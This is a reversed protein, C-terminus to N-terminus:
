RVLYFWTRGDGLVPDDFEQRDEEDVLTTPTAFDPHESRLVTYPTRGGTWELHVAGAADNRGVHLDIPSWAAGAQIRVTATEYPALPVVVQGGDMTLPEGGEEDQELREPSSFSLADSGIRATVEEGRLETLRLVLGSGVDAPKVAYLLVGPQDIGFFSARAGPLNGPRRDVLRTLPATLAGAGFRSATMPAFPGDMAQVHHVYHFLPPTDPEIEYGGVTGDEYEYEDSKDKLRSLLLADGNSFESSTLVSLNEFHHAVVNDVAYHIGLDADWFALVHEVNHWDFVASRDFGDALPDLYRTTTETRIEFEHVDFPMTAVYSVTGVQEDVWPMQDRDLVNEIELRDEGRYLRYVTEVHPTGTRTVRVAALLPGDSDVSVSASGPPEARPAAGGSAEQHTNSALQNFRYDSATDIMERGSPLHVASVLAGDAPDIEVSYWDNEITTDTVALTGEPEATPAGPQLDYVRYGMPPLATARFLIERTEDFRQFVLESGTARDVVHFSSSYIEEPLVTRVWGDREFGLTNIAVVADGRAPLDRTSRALGAQVLEAAADRAERAYELHIRNNRDMEERTFYGPWGGAGTHEDVEVMRRYAFDRRDALDDSGGLGVDAALLAEGGRADRHAQRIWTRTHQANAQSGSWACGFDGEFSPFAEPGYTALMHDLFDEATSLVFKPTEYAANWAEALNRAHFGQYHNDFGRMLLFEPYPYGAEEQEPLKKGMKHYLDELNDFFSFGWAFAEAYGDFTIWSLIRSGDPGIWWFPRDGHDPALLEGGFSTNMGGIYFELGSRAMLEPLAFTAGPVDDLVLTRLDFGHERAMRSSWYVSRTLEEHGVATTHLNAYGATLRMQGARLYSLLEEHEEPSSREWWRDLWWGAEITWRYDPDAALNDLVQDLHTKAFAEIDDPPETFGIDLHSLEVLHITRISSEVGAGADGFVDLDDIWTDVNRPGDAALEFRHVRELTRLDDIMELTWGGPENGAGGSWLRVAVRLAGAAAEEIAFRIWRKQNVPVVGAGTASRQVLVGSEARWLSVVGQGDIRMRYRRLEPARQEIELDFLYEAGLEARYEFAISFSPASVPHVFHRAWHRTPSIGFPGVGDAHFSTDTGDPDQTWPSPQGLGNGQEWDPDLPGEFDDSYVTGSGPAYAVALSAFALLSFAPALRKWHRRSRKM